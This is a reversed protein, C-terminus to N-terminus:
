QFDRRTELATIAVLAFAIAVADLAIIAMVLSRPLPVANILYSM